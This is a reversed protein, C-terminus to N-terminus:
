GKAKLKKPQQNLAHLMTRITEYVTESQNELLNIIDPPVTSSSKDDMLLEHPKVGVAEALKVVVDLTPNRQERMLLSITAQSIGSREALETNTWGHACRQINKVFLKLYKPM